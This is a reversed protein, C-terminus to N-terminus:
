VIKDRRWQQRSAQSPLTPHNHRGGSSMAVAAPDMRQQPTSMFPLPPTLESYMGTPASSAFNGDEEGELADDGYSVQLSGKKGALRDVMSLLDIAYAGAVAVLAWGLIAQADTKSVFVASLPILVCGSRGIFKFTVALIYIFRDGGSMDGWAPWQKGMTFVGEGILQLVVFCGWIGAYGIFLVTHTVTISHNSVLGIGKRVPENTNSADYNYLWLILFSPLVISMHYGYQHFMLSAKRRGRRAGDEEESSYARGVGSLAMGMASVFAACFWAVGIAADAPFLGASPMSFFRAHNDRDLLAAVFVLLLATVACVFAESLAHAIPLDRAASVLQMVLTFGAILSHSRAIFAIFPTSYFSFVLAWAGIVASEVSWVLASM